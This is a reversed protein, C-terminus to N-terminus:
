DRLKEFEAIFSDLDNPDLSDTNLCYVSSNGNKELFHGRLIKKSLTDDQGYFLEKLLPLIKYKFIRLLENKSEDADTLGNLSKFFAHGIQSDEGKVETIRRNIDEFSESVLDRIGSEESIWGRLIDKNPPVNFFTFRRRLAADLLAISRDSDNMTGILFVNDPVLFKYTSDKDDLGEDDFNPLTLSLGPKGDNVYRKDEEILTILEGFIRSIDGRNIEDILIVYPKELHKRAEKCIKLFIGEKVSYEIQGNKTSARIGAIFEEYGYSQHFTVMTLETSELPKGEYEQLPGSKGKLLGEIDEMRTIRGEIIGSALIRALYTKGTGVPGHLIMNRPIKAYAAQDTGSVGPSVITEEKPDHKDKKEKKEDYSSFFQDVEVHRLLASKQEDSLSSPLMARLNQRRDIAFSSYKESVFRDYVPFLDFLEKFNYPDKYEYGFEKLVIRSNYIYVSDRHLNVISYLELLPASVRYFRYRNGYITADSKLDNDTYNQYKKLEETDNRRIQDLVRLLKVYKNGNLINYNLGYKISSPVSLLKLVKDNLGTLYKRVADTEIASIGVQQKLIDIYDETGSSIREKGSKGSEWSRESKQSFINELFSESLLHANATGKLITLIDNIFSEVSPIRSLLDNSENYKKIYYDYRQWSERKEKMWEELYVSIDSM